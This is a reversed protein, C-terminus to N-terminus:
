GAAFSLPKQPYRTLMDAGIAIISLAASTQLTEVLSSYFGRSTLSSRSLAILIALSAGANFALASIRQEM